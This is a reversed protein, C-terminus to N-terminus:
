PCPFGDLEGVHMGQDFHKRCIWGLEGTDKYIVRQLEFKNLIDKDKLFNVLWQEASAREATRIAFAEDRVLKGPAVPAWDIPPDKLVGEGFTVVAKGYEMKPKPVMNELGMAIHAGVKAALFVWKLGEVVLEHVKKWNEDQLIVECGAQGEVIHERGKYECLLHLQLAKMGPVLQTILKQKFSADQKTFLVIRPVQRQSSNLILDRILRTVSLVDNKVLKHTSYMLNHTDHVVTSLQQIECALEGVSKDQHQPSQDLEQIEGQLRNTGTLLDSPTSITMHQNNSRPKLYSGLIRSSSSSSLWGRSIVTSQDQHGGGIEDIGQLGRRVVDEKERTGMLNMASECAVDLIVNKGESLEDWPHQYGIGHSLVAQKLEELLVAQDRRERFSMRQKVCETRIVGEVLAVGQCGDAAACRERIKEIIHGHVIDLAEDFSKEHSCVLVDMHTGVNANYDMVIEVGNLMVYIFDRKPKYVARMEKDVKLFNNHLAVQLRCFFGQPIFTCIPDDCQLRRGFYTSNANQNNLSWNWSGASQGVDLITPIFLKGVGHSRTTDEFCLELRLMLHVLNEATVDLACGGYGLERSSKLSDALVNELYARSTFGDPNTATALKSRDDSLKILHGMVRHCFWDLDVVLFDLDEFYIVDGSNHMSTAVAKRRAEVMSGEATVKVLGPLDTEQCLDSFTKWNMMPSTPNRGIWGNLASRVNSCVKYVPPLAQLLNVINEEIVSAVNSGSETSFGDVAIPESWVDLLEAFQEKLSTVSEQARAVLGPVKDSHTLVVIVKPKFSITRRSKSAIFRLWYELEKQIDIPLKVKEKSPTGKDRLVYPSCVLLFLSPNGTDSLDPLMFYHFGHFEEQGGMDWISWRIGESSKLSHVEIGRTRHTIQKNGQILRQGGDIKKMMFDKCPNLISKHEISRVVAKRLTTKGAYPSGCFIVRASTPKAMELEKLHLEKFMANKRLQEEIALHKGKAQLPTADLKIYTLTFNVLLVDMITPFVSGKVGYCGFLSLTELSHNEVLSRILEQVDSESTLSTRLDLHKISSNKRLMRAFTAGVSSMASLGTVALTTLTSNAQHGNEDMILPRVLEELDLKISSNRFNLALSTLTHNMKLANGFGSHKTTTGETKMLGLIFEQLGINHCLMDASKDLVDITTNQTSAPQLTASVITHNTCLGQLFQEIVDHTYHQSVRSVHIAKVNTSEVVISVLEKLDDGGSLSWNRKVDGDVQPQELRGESSDGKCEHYRMRLRIYDTTGDEKTPGNDGIDIALMDVVVDSITLIRSVEQVVDTIIADAM